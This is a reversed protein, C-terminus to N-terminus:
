STILNILKSAYFQFYNFNTFLHKHSVLNHCRADHPHSTERPVRSTTPNTSGTVVTGQVHTNSNVVTITMQLYTAIYSILYTRVHVHMTVNIYICTCAYHCRHVYMYMCLSMPTCVHVHMTVDTYICTCAYHCRHIYMYMCLSMPTYVHVHMTVDTYICTCAYHCRHIYMYMCLSMPTCTCAYHCIPTYVHVHMTIDTYMYMWTSVLM